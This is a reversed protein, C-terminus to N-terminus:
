HYAPVGGASSYTKLRVALNPAHFYRYGDEREPLNANTNDELPTQFNVPPRSTAPYACCSPARTYPAFVSIYRCIQFLWFCSLLYGLDQQHQIVSNATRRRIWSPHDHSSTCPKIHIMCNCKRHSIINKALARTKARAHRSTRRQGPLQARSSREGRVQDLRAPNQSWAFPKWGGQRRRVAHSARHEFV